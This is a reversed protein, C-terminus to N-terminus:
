NVFVESLLEKMDNETMTDGYYSWEPLHFRDDDFQFEIEDFSEDGGDREPYHEIWIIDEPKTKTKFVGVQRFLTTAIIECANTVSTGSGNTNPETMVVLYKNKHIWVEVECWSPINNYGNYTFRFDAFREKM